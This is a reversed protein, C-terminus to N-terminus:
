PRSQNILNIANKNKRRDLMSSDNIRLEFNNKWCPNLTSLKGLCLNANALTDNITNETREGKPAPTRPLRGIEAEISAEVYSLEIPRDKHELRFSFEKPKERCKRGPARFRLVSTRQQRKNYCNDIELGRINSNECLTKFKEPNSLCGEQLKNERGVVTLQKRPSCKSFLRPSANYYYDSEDEDESLEDDSGYVRSSMSSSEDSSEDKSTEWSLVASTKGQYFGKDLTSPTEDSSRLSCRKNSRTKKTSMNPPTPAEISSGTKTHNGSGEEGDDGSRAPTNTANHCSYGERKESDCLDFYDEAETIVDSGNEKSTCSLTRLHGGGNSVNGAQSLM